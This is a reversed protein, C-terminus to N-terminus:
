EEYHILMGEFQCMQEPLSEGSKVHPRARRLGRQGGAMEGRGHDAAGGRHLRRPQNSNAGLHPRVALDVFHNPLQPSIRGGCLWAVGGWRCVYFSTFYLKFNSRNKNILVNTKKKKIMRM